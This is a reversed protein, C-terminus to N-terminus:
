TVWLTVRALPEFGTTLWAAGYRCGLAGKDTLYFTVRVPPELGTTFIPADGVRAVTSTCWKKKKLNRM